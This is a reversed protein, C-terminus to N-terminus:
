LENNYMRIVFGDTCILPNLVNIWKVDREGNGTEVALVTVQSWGAGKIPCTPFNPQVMHLPTHM